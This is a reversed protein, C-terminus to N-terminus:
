FRYKKWVQDDFDIIKLLNAKMTVKDGSEMVYEKSHTAWHCYVAWDGYGGGMKLIWRLMMGQNSNTMYIGEPSNPITGEALVKGRNDPNNLIEMTLKYRHDAPEQPQEAQPTIQDEQTVMIEKKTTQQFTPHIDQGIQPQYDEGAMLRDLLPEIIEWIAQPTTPLPSWGSSQGMSHWGWMVDAESLSIDWNFKLCVEQVRKCDDPHQLYKM